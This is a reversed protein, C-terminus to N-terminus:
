TCVAGNGSGSAGSSKNSWKLFDFLLFHSTVGNLFDLLWLSKCLKMQLPENGESIFMTKEGRKWKEKKKKIEWLYSPSLAPLAVFLVVCKKNFSYL